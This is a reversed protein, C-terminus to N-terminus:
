PEWDGATRPWIGDDGIAVAARPGDPSEIV